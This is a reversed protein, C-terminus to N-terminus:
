IECCKLKINNILEQAVFLQEPNQWTLYFRLFDSRKSSYKM